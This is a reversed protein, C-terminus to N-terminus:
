RRCVLCPDADFEAHKKVWYYRGNVGSNQIVKTEFHKVNVYPCSVLHIKRSSTPNDTIIIYGSKRKIIKKFDRLKRIEYM